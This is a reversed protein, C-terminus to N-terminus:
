EKGKDKNLEGVLEDPTLEDPIYIRWRSMPLGLLKRLGEEFKKKSYAPYGILLSPGKPDTM